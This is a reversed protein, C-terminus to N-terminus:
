ACRLPAAADVPLSFLRRTTLLLAAREWECDVLGAERMLPVVTASTMLLSYVWLTCGSVTRVLLLSNCPADVSPAACMAPLGLICRASCGAVARGADRADAAAEGEAEGQGEGEGEGRAEGAEDGTLETRRM